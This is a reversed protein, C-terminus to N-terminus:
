DGYIEGLYDLSFNSAVSVARLYISGHRALAGPGTFVLLKCPSRKGYRSFIPTSRWVAPFHFVLSARRREALLRSGLHALSWWLVGVSSLHQGGVAGALSSRHSIRRALEGASSAPAIGVIPYSGAIPLVFITLALAM